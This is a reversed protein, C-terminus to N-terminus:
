FVKARFVGSDIKFFKLIKTFVSAMNYNNLLIKKGLKMSVIGQSGEVVMKFAKGTNTEKLSLFNGNDQLLKRIQPGM